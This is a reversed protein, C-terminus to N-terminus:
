VAASEGTKAFHMDLFKHLERLNTFQVAPYHGIWETRDRVPEVALANGGSIPYVIIVEMPQPKM